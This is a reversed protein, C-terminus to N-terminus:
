VEAMGTVADLGNTEILHNMLQEPDAYFLMPPPGPEGINVSMEESDLTPCARLDLADFIEDPLPFLVAGAIEYRYGRILETTAAMGGVYQNKELVLVRMGNRAM